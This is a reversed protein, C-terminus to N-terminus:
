KLLHRHEVCEIVDNLTKKCVERYDSNLINSCINQNQYMHLEYVLNRQLYNVDQRNITYMMNLLLSAYPLTTIFELWKYQRLSPLQINLKMEELWYYLSTEGFWKTRCFDGIGIAKRKADELFRYLDEAITKLISRQVVFEDTRYTKYDFQSSAVDQLIHTLWIRRLDDFWKVVIHDQLFEEVSSEIGVSRTYDLYKAYMMILMPLDISYIVCSPRQYKFQVAFRYIESVLEKSDHYIVHVPTLEKWYEWPKDMPLSTLPKEMSVNMIFEPITPDLTFLNKMQRANYVPDYMGRFSDVIPDVRAVYREYDSRMDLMDQNVAVSLIHKLMNMGNNYVFGTGLFRTKMIETRLSITVVAKDWNPLIKPTGPGICKLITDLM